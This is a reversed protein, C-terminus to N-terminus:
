QAPASGQVTFNFTGPIIQMYVDWRNAPNADGTIGARPLFLAGTQSEFQPGESCAQLGCAAPNQRCLTMGAEIGAQYDTGSQSPVTSYEGCHIQGFSVPTAPLADFSLQLGFKISGGQQVTRNWDLPSATYSGTLAANWYNAIRVGSALTFNVQWGQLDATAANQLIVNAALGNQWQSQVVYHLTCGDGSAAPLSDVPDTSDGSGNTTDAPQGAAPDTMLSKLLAVKDDWINTWDDQLIGGTDSSNPNWSWYFFDTMGKGLLYAAFADQWAKDRSDGGHGYRGGFEGPIVTYGADRLFGFHADWIAPLNDPFDAANFYNQVYVDPGYVHPSLVLKDAAINLPHCGMPELNGGQWYGNQGSSCNGSSEIGEVFILIDPNEALVAQAAKEAATNWDTAPNDAGWTANGHPENKLDLGIFYANGRYRGAMFKLDEIWQNESYNDTYWLTSIANCDPRHHDLLVYLGRRAAETMFADLIQLSDLGQLDQNKSYNITSPAVGQLTAPCVPIRLATFGLQQIQALMEKWNRAWLGHLVSDQTEFGFWNVGYIPVAQNQDNLIKGNHVSFGQAQTVALLLILSFYRIM